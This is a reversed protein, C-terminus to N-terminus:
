KAAVGRSLLMAGMLWAALLVCGGVGAATRWRRQAAVPTHDLAVLELRDTAARPEQDALRARQEALRQREAELLERKAALATAASAAQQLEHLKEIQEVVARITADRQEDLAAIRAQHARVKEAHQERARRDAAEQVQQQVRQQRDHMRMRLSRIQRDAADLKFNRATDVHQVAEALAEGAETLRSIEGRLLSAIVSQRTGADPGEGLKKVTTALVGSVRELEKIVRSISEFAAVQHEFLESISEVPKLLEIAHRRVQWAEAFQNLLKNLDDVEGAARELGERVALPPNLELQKGVAVRLGRATKRLQELPELVLVKALLLEAQYANGHVELEQADQAYVADDVLAQAFDETTVVGRPSDQSQLALLAAREASIEDSFARGQERLEEFRQRAQQFDADDVGAAPNDALGALAAGVSQLQHDLAALRAQWARWAPDAERDAASRAIAEGCAAIAGSLLSENEVAGAGRLAVELADGDVPRVVVRGELVAAQWRNAAGEGAIETVSALQAAYAAVDRPGQVRVRGVSQVEDAAHLVLWAASAVGGAALAIALARLQVGLRSLRVVRRTAAAQRSQQALQKEFAAIDAVLMERQEDIETRETELHQRQIELQLAAEEHRNEQEALRTRLKIAEEHERRAAERFESAQRYLLDVSARRKELDGAPLPATPAGDGAPDSAPIRARTKRQQQLATLDSVRAKLQSLLPGVDSPRVPTSGAGAGADGASDGTRDGAPEDTRAGAPEDARDGAPAGAAGIAAGADAADARAGAAGPAPGSRTSGAQPDAPTAPKAPKAPEPKDRAPESMQLSREPPTGGPEADRVTLTESTTRDM